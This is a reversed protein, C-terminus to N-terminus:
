LEYRIEGLNKRIEDDLEDLEKLQKRLKPILVDMKEEFTEDDLMEEKFGVYRGPTLVHDHKEIDELTASKCFGKEDEYEEDCEGRWKHYTQAITQIDDETLERHRRDKMEGMDRADIFLVEGSRGRFGHNKKDRTVFWLCCPISTNYFLKDPMAVICDVLDEEVINKRIDGEGSSNSSLSGNALVFGAIGAPKLHYIMHQIWAYNANGTPPTGYKWRVDDQLNEGGWDSVNFPPNALIYDVKLNSLKDQRFTDGTRVDNDIGHLALNMKCLKWTTPNSEQGYVYIDEDSGGHREIFKRSQVFMGGSGCCPDYVRGNYPEIMEVLTEVVSKPTYFEGGKKGEASAFNGLFYEYVQGLVDRESHESEDFKINHIIDVLEGLKQKDLEPRGYNTPLIGKLSENSKMIERMATDITTGISSNRADAVIVGWRSEEPVWFVNEATYEDVDEPDSAPDDVLEQYLGEFSDSIYKIFILGLVVHKYEAADINNRLKDASEWLRQELTKENNNSSKSSKPM